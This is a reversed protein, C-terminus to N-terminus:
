RRAGPQAAAIQEVPRPCTYVVQSVPTGDELVGTSYTATCGNHQAVIEITETAQAAFSLALAALVAILALSMRQMSM